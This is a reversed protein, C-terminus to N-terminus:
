ASVGKNKIKLGAKSSIKILENRDKDLQLQEIICNSPRIPIHIAQGNAKDKTLKDIHIAWRRRYVSVVKGSRNKLKGKLIKVVDNRKVPLNRVKHKQRLEKSLRISMLKRRESSPASLLRKRQVRRSSSVKNSRKM